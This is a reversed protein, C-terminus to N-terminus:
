FGPRPIQAALKRPDTEDPESGPSGGGRLRETPRRAPGGKPEEDGPKFSAVLEEADAELEERTTGLLRKAQTKTLGKDLAVELRLATLEASDARGKHQDREEGLKQSETKNADELEKAKKALPELERVKTRNSAAEKNAKTIADRAWQPLEEVNGEPPKGGDDNGDPKDDAPKGEPPKGGDDGEPAFVRRFTPIVQM